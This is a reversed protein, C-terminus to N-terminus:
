ADVHFNLTKLNRQRGNSTVKYLTAVCDAAGSTWAGSSLGFNPPWPYAPFFGASSTAVWVGAQYCNLKVWPKTTATTSVDFTIQDRWNPAGNLNQDYVMKLALSSSADTSSGGRGGGAKGGKGAFAAPLVILAVLAVVALALVPASKRPVAIRRATARVNEHRGSPTPPIPLPATRAWGRAPSASELGRDLSEHGIDANDDPPATATGPELEEPLEGTSRKLRLAALALAGLVVVALFKRNLM